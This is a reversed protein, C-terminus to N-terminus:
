QLVKETGGWGQGTPLITVLLDPTVKSESNAKGRQLQIDVYKLGHSSISRIGFKGSTGKDSSSFSFCTPTCQDGLSPM